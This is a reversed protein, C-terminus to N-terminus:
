YNVSLQMSTEVTKIEIDALLQAEPFMESAFILSNGDSVRLLTVHQDLEKTYLKIVDFVINNAVTGQLTVHVATVTLTSM